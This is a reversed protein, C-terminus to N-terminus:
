VSIFPVRMISLPARYRNKSVIYKVIQLHRKRLQERCSKRSDECVQEMKEVLHKFCLYDNPKTLM